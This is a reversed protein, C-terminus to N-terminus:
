REQVEEDTKFPLRYKGDDISVKIQTVDNDPIFEESQGRVFQKGSREISTNYQPKNYGENNKSSIYTFDEDENKEFMNEIM